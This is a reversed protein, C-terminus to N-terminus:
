KKTIDYKLVYYMILVVKEFLEVITLYIPYQYSATLNKNVCQWGTKQFVVVKHKM